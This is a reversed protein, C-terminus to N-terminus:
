LRQGRTTLRIMLVFSIVKSMIIWGDEVQDGHEMVRMTRTTALTAMVVIMATVEVTSQTKIMVPIMMLDDAHHQSGHRHREDDDDNM